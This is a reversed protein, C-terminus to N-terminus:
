ALRLLLASIVHADSSVEVYRDAWISNAAEQPNFDKVRDLCARALGSVVRPDDVSWQPQQGSAIPRIGQAEFGGSMRLAEDFLRRMVENHSDVRLKAGAHLINAVNEHKEGLRGKLDRSGCILQLSTSTEAIL